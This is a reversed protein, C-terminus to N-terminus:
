REDKADVIAQCQLLFQVALGELPIQLVHIGIQLCGLGLLHSLKSLLLGLAQIGHSMQYVACHTLLSSTLSCKLCCSCFTKTWIM